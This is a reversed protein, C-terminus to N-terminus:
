AHGQIPWSITDLCILDPTMSACCFRMWCPLRCFALHTSVAYAGGNLLVTGKLVQSQASPSALALTLYPCLENSCPLGHLTLLASMHLAMLCRNGKLMQRQADLALILSYPLATQTWCPLKYLTIPSSVTHAAGNPLVTGKLVRSQADLVELVELRSLIPADKWDSKEM